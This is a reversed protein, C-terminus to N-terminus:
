QTFSRLGAYRSDSKTFLGSFGGKEAISLCRDTDGLQNYVIAARLRVEGNAPALAMAQEIQKIAQQRHQSMANYDALFALVIADSPNVELKKSAPEM